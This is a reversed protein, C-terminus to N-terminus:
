AAKAKPNPNQAILRRLMSVLLTHRRTHKEAAIRDLEYFWDKPVRVTLMALPAEPASAQPEVDPQGTATHQTKSM